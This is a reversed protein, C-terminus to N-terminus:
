CDGMVRRPIGHIELTGSRGEETLALVWDPLSSLAVHQESEEATASAARAAAEGESQSRTEESYGEDLRFPTGASAPTKFGAMCHLDGFSSIVADRFRQAM